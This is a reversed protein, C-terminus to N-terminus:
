PHPPSAPPRPQFNLIVHQLIAQQDDPSISVFRVGAQISRAQKGVVQFQECWVVEGTFVIPRQRDPLTIEVEVLTKPALSEEVFVCIGGGSINKTSSHQPESAPLTRYTVPLTTDLRAFKRQEDM